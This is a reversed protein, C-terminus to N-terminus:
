SAYYWKLKTDNFYISHINGDSGKVRFCRKRVKDGFGEEIWNDVIEVVDIRVGRLSFAVPRKDRKRGSYSIVDIMESEM